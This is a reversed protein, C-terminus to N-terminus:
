VVAVRGIRAEGRVPRLRPALKEVQLLAPRNLPLNRNPANACETPFRSRGFTIASCTLSSTRPEDCASRRTGNAISGAECCPGRVGDTAPTAHRCRKAMHLVLHYLGPPM